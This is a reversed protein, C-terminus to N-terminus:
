KDLLEYIIFGFKDEYIKKFGAVQGNPDLEKRILPWLSRRMNWAADDPQNKDDLNTHDLELYRIQYDRMVRKLDDLSANNPIMAGQRQSHFSLEWINRSMVRAEGPTNQKLWNAAQVIGTAGTYGPGDEIIKQVGPLWLGAFVAALVWAALRGKNPQGPEKEKEPSNPEAAMKDYVWTLGYLGFAYCWPLWAMFYRIEYHWYINIFLLYIVFAFGILGVLGARRRPLVMLGLGVLLWLLPALFNGGLLDNWEKTFQNGIAKFITDFGYELLKNPAPLARAPNLYYL